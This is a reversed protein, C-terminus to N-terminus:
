ATEDASERESADRKRDLSGLIDVMHTATTARLQCRPMSTTPRLHPCMLLLAHLLSTTTTISPHPLSTTSAPTPLHTQHKTTTSSSNATNQEHTIPHILSHTLSATRWATTSISLSYYACITRPRPPRGAQSSKWPSTTVRARRM